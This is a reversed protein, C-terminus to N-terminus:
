AEIIPMNSKILVKNQVLSGLGDTTGVVQIAEAGLFRKLIRETALQLDSGKSPEWAVLFISWTTVLDIQDYYKQQVVSGADQIICEVGSVQRVAPIDEGATVISIADHEQGARFSYTGLMGLFLPDAALTEYVIQASTPFVQAMTSLVWKKLIGGLYLLLLVYGSSAKIGVFILSKVERPQTPRVIQHVVRM